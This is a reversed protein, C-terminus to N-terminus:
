LMTPIVWSVVRPAYLWFYNGRWKSEVRLYSPGEATRHLRLTRQLLSTPLDSYSKTSSDEVRLFASIADGFTMLPKHEKYRLCFIMCALKLANCAIVIVLNTQDLIIACPPTFPRALCRDVVVTELGDFWYPWLEVDSRGITVHASYSFVSDSKNIRNSILLVADSFPPGVQIPISSGDSKYWQTANCDFLGDYMAARHQLDHLLKRHVDLFTCAPLMTEGSDAQVRAMVDFATEVDFSDGTIFNSFVGYTAYQM